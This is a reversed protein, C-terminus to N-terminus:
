GSGHSLDEAPKPRREVRSCQLGLLAFGRVGVIGTELVGARKFVISFFGGGVSLWARDRGLVVVAVILENVSIGLGAHLLHFRRGLDPGLLVQDCSIDHLHRGAMELAYVWQCACVPDPDDGEDIRKLLAHAEAQCCINCAVEAEVRQGGGGSHHRANDTPQGLQREGLKDVDPPTRL